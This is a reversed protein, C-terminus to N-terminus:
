RTEKSLMRSKERVAHTPFSTAGLPDSYFSLRGLNSCTGEELATTELSMM